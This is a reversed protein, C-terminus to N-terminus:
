ENPRATARTGQDHRQALVIIDPSVGPIIRPSVVPDRQFVRVPRYGFEGALLRRLLAGESTEPGLRAYHVSTLVVFDPMRTGLSAIAEATFDAQVVDVDHPFRPLYVPGTYVEVTAGPAAESRLWAEAAYRADRAMLYSLEAGYVFSYLWVLALPIAMARHRPRARTWAYALVPGAFLALVLAVEMVFRPRFRDLVAVTLALYSVLPLAVHRGWRHRYPLVLLGALAALFLVPNMVDATNAAVHWLGQLPGDFEITRPYATGMTPHVKFVRWVLRSVNGDWNFILHTAVVFAVLSAVLASLVKRDGTARLAAPVIRAGADHHQAHLVLVSVPLLLFLGLTQEKTALAMGVASGLLVYTGAGHLGVILRALAFLALAAWFVSPTDVNGTHAYYIFAPSCAVTLGSFLAARRGALHRATLYVLVVIGVGMLASIGRAILTLMTLATEPDKFGFPYVDSPHQFGGTLRLYGLYPAYAAMLIFFHGMPFKNYYGSNWWDDIIMRKAAILPGMPAIGDVDWGHIGSLPLGWGLAVGNLLVALVVVLILGRDRVLADQRARPLAAADTLPAISM